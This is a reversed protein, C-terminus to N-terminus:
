QRINLLENELETKANTETNSLTGNLLNNQEYADNILNYLEKNSNAKEILKYNGNSITWLNNTGDDKESYQFHRITSPQYLLSKFSKSDHIENVSVGSIEAITAFLDTSTILNNDIGTRSVGKGSIFMPTNIGGQYLSGKAKNRTYPSQVVESTTGNDGIFIIITNEKEDETLSNIMKGIQFDMAEIAAMFYPTEDIGNTYDPLNGQSHMENPPVHFPTHPANYALWMFWPKEQEKIWDIGLDTLKKTTYETQTTTNINETLEWNYYNSVAGNFIGAYYDLGLNEPNITTNNASLHWKGVIATAYTNSTNNNIYKQLITESLDLQDGVWKVGTRYGYKGTIISSRTPTCTPYVWFNNFSLGTNKIADINPTNPKIIGESFGNTADKGMDDAIILLINPSSEIPNTNNIITEDKGCSFFTFILTIFLLQKM